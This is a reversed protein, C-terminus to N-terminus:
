QEETVDSFNLEYSIFYKKKCRKKQCYEDDLEMKGRKGCFAFFLSCFLYM